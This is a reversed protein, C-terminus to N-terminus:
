LHFTRNEHSLDLPENYFVADFFMLEFHASQLFAFNIREQSLPCSIPHTLARTLDTMFETSSTFQPSSYSAIWDRYPNNPTSHLAMQKGLQHYIFFCPLCSAVAEPIPSHRVTYQLHATYKTIVPIKEIPQHAQPAFFTGRETKKLYKQQM